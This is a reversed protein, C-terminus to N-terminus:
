LLLYNNHKGFAELIKGHYCGNRDSKFSEQVNQQFEPESHVNPSFFIKFTRNKYLTIGNNLFAVINLNQVWQIPIIRLEKNAGFGFSVKLYMESFNARRFMFTAVCWNSSTNIDIHLPEM